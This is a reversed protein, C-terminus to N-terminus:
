VGTGTKSIHLPDQQIEELVDFQSNKLKLKTMHFMFFNYPAFQPYHSLTILFVLSAHLLLEILQQTRMRWKRYNKEAWFQIVETSHYVTYWFTVTSFLLWHKVKLSLNVTLLGMFTLSFLSGHVHNCKVQGTKYPRPSHPEEMTFAISQDLSWVRTM